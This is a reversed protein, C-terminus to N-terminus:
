KKMTVSHHGSGCLNETIEPVRLSPTSKFVLCIHYSLIGIFIIFAIGASISTIIFQSAEKSEEKLYFTAVSFIGLNLIFSSELLDKWRQEYVRRKFALLALSVSTVAVLNVQESDNPNIAFTLFLGLRSLLLLGTWYRAHKRYPAQYADLFPKIKNLWSLIWWNSCDQLWHGFVLPSIYLVVLSFLAFLGLFTHKPEKFFQM